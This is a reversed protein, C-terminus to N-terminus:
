AEGLGEKRKFELKPDAVPLPADKRVPIESRLRAMTATLEAQLKAHEPKGYLNNTEGPDARLDYMEFEDPVLTYEILKHRETRVGRCPPAGEPNPWEFYEYYWEKRFNPNAKAALPLLSKGQMHAPKEIGALDLITPAIDVDLAMEDRVTGAPVRAPYRVMLPVRISPEHMLRKDFLRWEGLFYGHDSGHVVATNELINKQELHGMVKGVLDDVGQLQAYYNKCLEELSRVTDGMVTTGVKNAAKAFSRPKGPYGKLDDDFTAPKPIPVGNYSDLYKRPRYFPAHPAVFWVLLCFPKDGRDEDLWALGKEVALDDAWVPGYQKQDGIKGKRGEKYIPNYYNNSAANHGFYYDWYRDEGGNRLHVKGVIGVEYGAEHLLETFLPIDSPLPRHADENAYAGTSQSYMGTMAVARAPACLANTCFANTFRMGERGIRDHHPTKLLPHGAISLADARHGEGFFFILNPRRTAEAKAPAAYASGPLSATLASGAVALTGQLFERRNTENQRPMLTLNGKRNPTEPRGRAISSASARISRKQAFANAFFSALTDAQFVM